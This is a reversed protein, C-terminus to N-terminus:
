NKVKDKVDKVTDAAAETADKAKDAADRCSVFSVTLALMLISSLIVKKM